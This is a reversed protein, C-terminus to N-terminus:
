GAAVAAPEQSVATAPAGITEQIRRYVPVDWRRAAESLYLVSPRMVRRAIGPPVVPHRGVLLTVRGSEWLATLDAAKLVLKALVPDAEWLYLHQSACLRRAIALAEAGTGLGLQLISGDEPLRAWPLPPDAASARGDEWRAIPIEAGTPTVGVLTRRLGDHTGLRYRRADQRQCLVPLIWRQTKRLAVLNRGLAGVDELHQLGVYLQQLALPDDYPGERPGEAPGGAPRALLGMGFRGPFDAGGVVRFGSRALVTTLAAPSYLRVHAGGFFGTFLRPGDPPNLLNPTAVFLVGDEELHGRMVRLMPIPDPVHEVTHSFLVLSFRRGPFAGPGYRGTVISEPTGGLQRRAFETWQPVPDIGFVEWGREKFPLLYTGSGCGIDLVTKSRVGPEIWDALQASVPRGRQMERAIDEARVLLPRYEDTYVRALDAEDLMPDQYVHGCRDCLVFRVQGGDTGNVGAVRRAVRDAPKTVFEHKDTGGCILCWGPQM